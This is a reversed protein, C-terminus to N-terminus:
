GIKLIKGSPIFVRFIGIHDGSLEFKLHRKERAHLMADLVSYFRVNSITM